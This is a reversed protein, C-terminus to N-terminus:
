YHRPTATLFLRKRMPLNKDDLAFAFNRGERGATKHAEDFVALDFAEGPQMAAGVVSASQYTSIGLADHKGAFSKSNAPFCQQRSGFAKQSIIFGQRTTM